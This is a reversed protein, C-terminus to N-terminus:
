DVCDNLLHDAGGNRITGGIVTYAMGEARRESQYLCVERVTMEAPLPRIEVPLGEGPLVPKRMLTIHPNFPQPDYPIGVSDLRQRVQAALDALAKSPAVGAWLVHARQFIGVHSLVLPFPEQVPPLIATVDDPWEGIFALTLHLNGPDLYRGNVGARRLRDQLDKLAERFASSPELGIFLRM